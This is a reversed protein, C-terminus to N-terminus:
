STLSKEAWVLEYKEEAFYEGSLWAVSTAIPFDPLPSLLSAMVVAATAVDVVDDPEPFMWLSSTDVWKFGVVM